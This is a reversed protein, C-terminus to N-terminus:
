KGATFSELELVTEFGNVWLRQRAPGVGPAFWTTMPTKRGDIAFDTSGATVAKFKGAPVVVEAEALAFNGTLSLGDVRSDVKWQSGVKAPLPLLCQPPEVLKGDAQYRFVGEARVALHEVHTKDNEKAELRACLVKGVMEHGAVRVTITRNDARYVWRTGIQLPFYASSPLKKEQGALSLCFAPLLVLALVFRM